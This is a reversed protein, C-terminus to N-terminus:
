HDAPHPRYGTRHGRRMWQGVSLPRVCRSVGRCDCRRHSTRGKTPGARRREGGAAAWAPGSDNIHLWMTAGYESMVVAMPAQPNAAHLRQFDPRNQYDPVYTVFWSAMREENMDVFWGFEDLQEDTKDRTLEEGVRSELKTPQNIVNNPQFRDTPRRHHPRLDALGPGTGGVKRSRSTDARWFPDFIADLKDAPIGVGTDAIDLILWGPETRAAVLSM